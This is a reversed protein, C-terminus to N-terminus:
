RCGGSGCGGASCGGACSAAVYGQVLKTETIEGSVTSTGYGKVMAMVAPLTMKATIQDYDRSGPKLTFLGCKTGKAEITRAAGKLAALPSAGNGSKTPLYIFVVDTKNAATNIEAFSGITSGVSAGSASSSTAPEAFATAAAITLAIAGIPWWTKVLSHAVSDQKALKMNENLQDSKNSSNM